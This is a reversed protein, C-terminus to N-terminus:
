HRPWVAPITYCTPTLPFTSSPLLRAVCISAIQPLGGPPRGLRGAATARDSRGCSPERPLSLTGVVDTLSPQRASTADAAIGASRAPQTERDLYSSTTSWFVDRWCCVCACCACSAECLSCIPRCLACSPRSCPAILYVTFLSRSKGGPLHCIDAEPLCTM